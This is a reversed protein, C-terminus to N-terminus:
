KMESTADPPFFFPIQGTSDSVDWSYCGHIQSLFCIAPISKFITFKKIIQNPFCHFFQNFIHDGLVLYFNHLDNSIGVFLLVKRLFFTAHLRKTKFMFCCIKVKIPCRCFIVVIDEVKVSSISSDPFPWFALALSLASCFSQSLSQSSKSLKVQFIRYFNISFINVSSLIFNVFGM